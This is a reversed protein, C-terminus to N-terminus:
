AGRMWQPYERAMRVVDRTYAFAIFHIDCLAVSATVGVTVFVPFTTSYAHAFFAVLVIFVHLWIIMWAGNADQPPEGNKEYPRPAYGPDVMSMPRQGPPPQTARPVDDDEIPLIEALRVLKESTVDVRTPFAYVPPDDSTTQM